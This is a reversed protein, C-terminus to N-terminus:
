HRVQPTAPAVREAARPTSGIGPAPAPTVPAPTASTTGAAASRSITGPPASSDSTNRPTPTTTTSPVSGPQIRVNISGVPSATAGAGASGQIQAAPSPPNLNLVGAVQSGGLATPVTGGMLAFGLQEATPAGIGLGILQQRSAELVQAIQNPTLTTTPTFTVTQTFGTPLVSILQVPTGQALGTVLSQFNLQSGAFTVLQPALQQVTVTAPVTQAPAGHCVVALAAAVVLRLPM